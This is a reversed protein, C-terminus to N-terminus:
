FQVGRGDPQVSGAIEKGRMIFFSKRKKEPDKPAKPEAAM